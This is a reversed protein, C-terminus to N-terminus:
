GLSIGLEYGARVAAFGNAPKLCDGIATYELGAEKLEKELERNPAIGTAFVLCEIGNLSIEKGSGDQLIVENGRVRIVRSRTYTQLGLSSLRALLHSRINGMDGALQDLMEVLTVKKEQELLLEAVECGTAGGGIVVINKEEVGKQLAEVYSMSKISELGPIEPVVPTSGTALIIFDAKQGKIWDVTATRHIIEGGLEEFRRRYIESARRLNEKMPIKAALLFQGGVEKGEEVLLVKAGREALLIGASLGAPGGGVVLFRSPPSLKRAEEFERGVRPNLLCSIDMGARLRDSCGIYCSLCPMIEEERGERAKQPFDPDALLARGMAIFDADGRALIEEALSPSHIRGVTIVPVSVKQKIKGALPAILGPENFYPQAIWHRSGYAGASIHLADVRPALTECYFSSLPLDIGGELFESADIRLIVPFGPGVAERVGQAVEAVFRVRKEKSGGYADERQNSLPSLFQHLLYGHASHIEVADFGAKQARAAAGAFDHIIKQIQVQSLAAPMEGVVPCPIPSPALIPHGTLESRTQRGCHLLQVAIKGGQEQVAKTLRRLGPILSDEYIGMECSFGQGEKNIYAGEAIILGTGGRARRALYQILRETVEGTRTCFNTVMPPMVIRNRLVIRGIRGESFLRPYSIPKM